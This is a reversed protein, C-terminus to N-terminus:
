AVSPGGTYPHGSFARQPFWCKEKWCEIQEVCNLNNNDNNENLQLLGKKNNNM